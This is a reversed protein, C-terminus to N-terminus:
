VPDLRDAQAVEIYEARALVGVSRISCHDRSPDSRCDGSFRYLDETIALVASVKAVDVISNLCVDQGCRGGRPIGDILDVVDRDPIARCQVLQELFDAINKLRIVRAHGANLWHVLLWTDAVHAM